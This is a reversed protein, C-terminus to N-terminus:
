LSGIWRLAALGPLFFYAGGKVTVFQPLCVARRRSPEAGPRTFSDTREPTASVPPVPFPERNGLLPDQEGTLTAFKSNAIWAGQV